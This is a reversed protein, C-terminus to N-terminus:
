RRARRGRRHRRRQQLPARRQLWQLSRRASVHQALQHFYPLGVVLAGVALRREDLCNPLAMPIREDRRRARSSDFQMM